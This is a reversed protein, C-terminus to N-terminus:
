DSAAGTFEISALLEELETRTAGTVDRSCVTLQDLANDSRRFVIHEADTAHLDCDEPRMDIRVADLGSIEYPTGSPLPRVTPYPYEGSSWWDILVGGPVLEDIPRDCTESNGTRICEDHMPQNSFYIVPRAPGWSVFTPLRYTWGPPLTVQIGSVSVETGFPTPNSDSSIVGCAHFKDDAGFGGGLKVEDGERALVNGDRDYITLVPASAIVFDEPYSFVIFVTPMGEGMSLVPNGDANADLVGYALGAACVRPQRTSTSEPEPSYPPLEASPAPSADSAVVEIEISVEIDLGNCDDLGLSADAIVLWRGAPLRLEPDRFFAEDFPGEDYVRGSKRYTETVPDNPSITYLDRRCSSAFAAILEGDGGTQQILSIGIGGGGLTVQEMEGVYRLTASIDIPEDTTWVTHASHVTLIFDGVRTEAMAPPNPSPTAAGLPVSRLPSLAILTLAAAAVVTAGALGVSLWRRHSGVTELRPTASPASRELAELEARLRDDGTM